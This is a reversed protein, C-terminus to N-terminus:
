LGLSQLIKTSSLYGTCVRPLCKNVKDLAINFNNKIYKSLINIIEQDIFDHLKYGETCKM